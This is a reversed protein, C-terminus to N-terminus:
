KLGTKNVKNQYIHRKIHVIQYGSFNNLNVKAKNSIIFRFLGLWQTYRIDSPKSNINFKLERGLRKLQKYTFIKLFAEKISKRWQNFAYIIFDKYLKFTDNKIDPSIKKKFEVLVIDVSPIPYFDNKNLQYIIKSNYIPSLLLSIQTTKGIGLFREASEKQIFIYSSVPSNKNFLLKQLIDSTYNFPINSFCKYKFKPLLYDLFDINILKLNKYKCLKKRALQFLRKDKEISIVKYSFKCLGETIVGIGTGIELVTDSYNIGAKKILYDILKKDKIFNQSHRSLRM